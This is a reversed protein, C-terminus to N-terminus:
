RARRQRFVFGRDGWDIELGRVQEVLDAHVFLQLGRSRVVADAAGGMDEFTLDFGKTLNSPVVPRLRVGFRWLGHARAADRLRDRAAITLFIPGTEAADDDDHDHPNM